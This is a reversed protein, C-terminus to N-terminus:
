DTSPRFHVPAETYLNPVVQQLQLLTKEQIMLTVLCGSSLGSPTATRIKSLLTEM